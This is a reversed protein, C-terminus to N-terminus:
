AACLTHLNGPLLTADARAALVELATVSHIHTSLACCCLRRGNSPGVAQVLPAAPSPRMHICSQSCWQGSSMCCPWDAMCRHRYISLSHFDGEGLHAYKPHHSCCRCHPLHCHLTSFQDISPWHTKCHLITKCFYMEGINLFLKPQKYTKAGNDLRKERIGESIM